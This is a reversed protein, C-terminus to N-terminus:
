LLNYYEEAASIITSGVLVKKGYVIPIPGGQDTSNVPGNFMTSRSGHQNHDLRPMTLRVVVYSVVLAIILEAAYWWAGETSPSIHIIKAKDGFSFGDALQKVNRDDPSETAVIHFTRKQRLVMDLAPCRSKLGSFLQHQNACDFRFHKQGAAKELSGYLYIDRIVHIESRVKGQAEM